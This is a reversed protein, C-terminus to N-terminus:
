TIFTCVYVNINKVGKKLDMEIADITSGAKFAAVLLVELVKVINAGLSEKM